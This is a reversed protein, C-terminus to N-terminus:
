TLPAVRDMRAEHEAKERVAELLFAIKDPHFYDSALVCGEDDRLHPYPNMELRLNKPQKM